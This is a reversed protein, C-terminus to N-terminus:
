LNRGAGVTQIGNKQLLAITDLLAEEGYDMAHNGALSVVNFDCDSFVSALHPKLRHKIGGGAPVQYTGRESYLRECQSFRIDGTALVPRALASYPEMPEQAPGVDGCGLLVISEQAM